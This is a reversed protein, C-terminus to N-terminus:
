FSFTKSLTFVINTDSADGLLTSDSHILAIAYDFLGTGGVTLNNGYGAEYYAGDFDDEFTGIKGYFGNHSATLSYFQYNLTPGSFNDYEGIAIDFSLFSWAVGLNLELYEDDFDGTYTYWTGGISLSLDGVDFGYAGYYDIELGDGVDATWAGASFGDHEFDLGGFASSSKQPIGRYIYESNYGLNASFDQAVLFKPALAGLLVIGIAITKGPM